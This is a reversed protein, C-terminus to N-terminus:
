RQVQYQSSTAVLYVAQQAKQAATMGAVSIATRITNKMAASMTGHMMKANLGEILTNGTLDQTAWATPEALSISTGLPNNVGGGNIRSYVMTNIFNIRAFSTGTNTIGFEPGLVDTGPVVYDPPFYNFVTPPNWVNQGLAAVQPSIYGDSQQTRDASKVDFHRLLNTALQFPERLKGYNPDTKRSGRAEPDLLIARIVAKMDGREGAGNNNFAAAVRAVYAPSPDSTVLHQILLKGIYPAVNPHYFINDLTQDLSNNAYPVRTADTTCGTCAPITPNPAGPYNFLTKATLDHNSGIVVMPDIYNPVITSTPDNPDQRVPPALAWGTFVKTFQNIKEQDYTPIRNGQNDLIPTGDQNLMELGISFLQLIERPYNENANTRTSRVMDLYNGMAPNLTMEKMLTRYNGFANRDLVEYYEQLWRAQQTDVGSVVWIQHLAWSVRRRLQDEGYLAEKFMWNQNHYQSYYDRTCIGYNPDTSPGCAAPPATNVNTAKLQLDPYPFTPQKTFQEEIWRNIGVQKLRFDLAPAPGFAAQEMFRIRDGNTDAFRGAQEARVTSAPTPAAGPDDQIKGGTAGLGLRVRNSTNGRWSVRILVDGNAEPQGNYENEDYLRVTLGYIGNQKRVPAINEVAFRYQKRAADEAYVRFANANEGPMLDVNAVFIVVRSGNQFVEANKLPLSGRWTGATSALARTSDNASILIPDTSDPIEESTAANATQAFLILATLFAFLYKKLVNNYGSFLRKEEM